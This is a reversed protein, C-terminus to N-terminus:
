ADFGESSEDLFYTGAVPDFPVPYFIKKPSNNNTWVTHGGFLASRVDELSKFYGDLLQYESDQFLVAAKGFRVITM